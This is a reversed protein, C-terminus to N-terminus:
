GSGRGRGGDLTWKMFKAFECLANQGDSASLDIGHRAAEPRIVTAYVQNFETRWAGEEWPVDPSQGLAWPLGRRSGPGSTVFSMFDAASRLPAVFKLDAIVQAALFGGWG